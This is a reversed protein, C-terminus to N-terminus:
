RSPDKMQCYIEERPRLRQLVSGQAPDRRSAEASGAGGKRVVQRKATPGDPSQAKVPGMLRDHGSLDPQSPAPPLLSRRGETLDGEDGQSGDKEGRLAPTCSSSITAGLDSPPDATKDLFM